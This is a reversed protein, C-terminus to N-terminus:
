PRATTVYSLIKFCKCNHRHTKYCRLVNMYSTIYKGDARKRWVEEGTSFHSYQLFKAGALWNLPVLRNQEMDHAFLYKLM